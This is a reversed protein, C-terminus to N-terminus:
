KLAPKWHKFRKGNRLSNLSFMAIEESKQPCEVLKKLEAYANEAIESETSMVQTFLQKVHPYKKFCCWLLSATKAFPFPYLKLVPLFDMLIYCNIYFIINGYRAHFYKEVFKVRGLDDDKMFHNITSLYFFGRLYMIQIPYVESLNTSFNDRFFQSEYEKLQTASHIGEWKFQKKFEDSVTVPIYKHHRNKFCFDVVPMLNPIKLLSNKMLLNKLTEGVNRQMRGVYFPQIVKSMRLDFPNTQIEPHQTVNTSKVNDLTRHHVESPQPVNSSKDIESAPHQTVNTSTDVKSALQQSVKLNDVKSAPQQTMNTSTDVKSALQQSVKLNDVKSAPQQTVNTSKDVSSISKVIDLARHLMRDVESSQTVNTSAPPQTVNKSAPQQVPNMSKDVESTPPQVPNTSKDNKSAPLQVPNTSKDVESTPPQVPNTSKDVESTPPQAVNTSKEVESAPHAVNKSKDVESAPHQAPNTSKDNKSAPPQVLNTSKDNKSAPLQVLNTSKDNKSTPHQVPNTSKDVESTPLQVPNTSKDNKSAPPQVPNTSKDNKSAPPQVPNTSKNNKLAPPQAVNTSKEVESAPHQVPNKSKEVESAPHQAVNKSKDNKSAPHQVPNKSKEVESTPPQSVGINDVKSAPHQAPNTSKDNTSAPHQASSISKVSDLARHLMRDVFPTSEDDDTDTVVNGEDDDCVIMETPNVTSSKHCIDEIENVTNNLREAITYVGRSRLLNIFAKLKETLCDWSSENKQMEQVLDDLTQTIGKIGRSKMLTVVDLLQLVIFEFDFQDVDIVAERKRKNNMTVIFHLLIVHVILSHKIYTFKLRSM